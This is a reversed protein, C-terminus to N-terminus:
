RRGRAREAREIIGGGPLHEGIRAAAARGQQEAGGADLAVGGGRDQEQEGAAAREDGAGLALGGGGLEFQEVREVLRGRAVHEAEPLGCGSSGRWRRGCRSGRGGPPPPRM